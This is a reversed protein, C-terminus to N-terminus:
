DYFFQNKWQNKGKEFLLSGDTISFLLLTFSLAPVTSKVKM